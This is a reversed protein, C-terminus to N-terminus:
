VRESGERRSAEDSDGVAVPLKAVSPSPSVGVSDGNLGDSRTEAVM